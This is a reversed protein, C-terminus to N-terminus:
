PHLCFRLPVHNVYVYDQPYSEQTPPPRIRRRSRTAGMAELQEAQAQDTSSLAFQPTSGSSSDSRPQSKLRPARGNEDLMERAYGSARECPDFEVRKPPWDRGPPLATVYRM